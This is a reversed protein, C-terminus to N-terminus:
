LLRKPTKALKQRFFAKTGSENMAEFNISFDKALRKLRTRKLDALEKCIARLQYKQFGQINKINELQNITKVYESELLNEKKNRGALLHKQCKRIIDLLQYLIDLASFKQCNKNKYADLFWIKSITSLFINFKTQVCSAM